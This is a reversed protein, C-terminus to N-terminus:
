KEYDRARPGQLLYATVSDTASETVTVSRVATFLFNQRCIKPTFEAAFHHCHGLGDLGDSGM